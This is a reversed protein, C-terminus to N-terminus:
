NSDAPDSRGEKGSDRSAPRRDSSGTEASIRHHIVDFIHRAIMANAKHTVHASDLFYEDGQPRDNLIDSLDVSNITDALDVTAERLVPYGLAFSKAEGVPIIYYNEMLALEYDSLIEDSWIHPQLFHFFTANNRFSFEHAERITRGFRSKMSELLRAVFAPDSLHEPESRNIPDFFLQVLDSKVSLYLMARHFISLDALVRRNREIMTEEPHAYFLGQGIDNVGDYFVVIDGARLTSLTELRELQQITSVSTTGYNEVRYTDPYHDNFLLQLQSAITLSDPVEGCFMTSGGFLYVSSVYSDPQFATVRKGDIVNVYRGTFDNPIILRTNEPYQWGGPQRRWEEIFERSFYEADAYPAPRLRRYEYHGTPLGLAANYIRALAELLLLLTIVTLIPVTM